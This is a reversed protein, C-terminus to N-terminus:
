IKEDSILVAHVVIWLNDKFNSTLTIIRDKSDISEKFNISSKSKIDKFFKEKEEITSFNNILYYESFFSEYVSFIKYTYKRKDTLVVIKNSSKWNLLKKLDGFSIGESLNKGYFITNDDDMKSSNRYDMFPWGTNSSVKEYNNEFYFDNNDTKTIPYNIRTGNVKIWCVTDKNISELNKFDVQKLSYNEYKEFIGLEENNYLVEGPIINKESLIERTIESNDIYDKEVFFMDCFFSISFLVLVTLLFFEPQEMRKKFHKELKNFFDIHFLNNLFKFFCVFYFYFGKTTFICVYIAGDLTIKIIYLPFLIIKKISNM